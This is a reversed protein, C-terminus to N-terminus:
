PWLECTLLHICYQRWFCLGIFSKRGGSRQFNM